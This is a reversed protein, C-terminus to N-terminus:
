GTTSGRGPAGERHCAVACTDANPDHGPGTAVTIGARLGATATTLEVM